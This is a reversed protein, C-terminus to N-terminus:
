STTRESQYFEPHFTNLARNGNRAGYYPPGCQRTLPNAPRPEPLNADHQVPHGNVQTGAAAVTILERSHVPSASLANDEDGAGISADALSQESSQQEVVQPLATTVSLRHFGKTGSAPRIDFDQTSNLVALQRKLFDIGEKKESGTAGNTAARLCSQEIRKGSTKRRILRTAAAAFAQEDLSNSPHLHREALTKGHQIQDCFQVILGDHNRAVPQARDVMGDESNISQLM